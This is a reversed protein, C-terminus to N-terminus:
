DLEDRIAELRELSEPNAEFHDRVDDLVENVAEAVAPKLDAPHLGDEFAEALEGYSAFSLDGGYEDPRTVELTDLRPFVVHKALLLVPNGEVEGQPCYAAELKDRITERTDHLFIGSGPDSKSMKSEAPDMRAGEQTLSPLLPTHLAVPKDWDLSDAVDRALMHAHRQDMGGLALDWDNYFIDAVQMVPYLTKSFDVDADEAKRGMISMSRKIRNLTSAKAVRIVTEWYEDDDVYDSAYVYDVEDPGVGLAEFVDEMYRGCDRIRDMDGGLKDNIYAHWDALLISVDFGADVLDRVKNATIMWGVHATGSPEFGIYARRDDRALLDDLDEETVVEEANRSVLEAPDPASM